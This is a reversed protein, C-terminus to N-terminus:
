HVLTLYLNSSGTEEFLTRATRALEKFRRVYLDRSVAAYVTHDASLGDRLLDADLEAALRAGQLQHISSLEDHPLM